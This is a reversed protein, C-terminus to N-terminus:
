TGMKGALDMIRGTTVSISTTMYEVMNKFTNSISEYEKQVKQLDYREARFDRSAFVFASYPEHSSNLFPIAGTFDGAGLSCLHISGGPTKRIVHAEGATIRLCENENKEPSILLNLKKHRETTVDQKLVARACVDTVHRLRKDVSILISQLDESMAAYERSILESDLVGLQVKGIAKVTASRVNGERLFSVISGIYAGDALRVIPASGEPLIRIVEMKGSLIVWFWNGFRNQAVVDTGGPFEEEDVVYVYDIVPGKIVPLENQKKPKKKKKKPKEGAEPAPGVEPILGDDFMRLGDLIIEMRSKKITPTCSVEDRIFEFDAHTWGFFNYLVDVGTEKGFEAHVPNGDDLYIYGPEDFHGSVLKIVGTSGSSGLQQLLEGLEIFSLSGQLVVKSKMCGAKMTGHPNCCINWM